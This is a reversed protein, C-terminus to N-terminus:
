DLDKYYYIKNTTPQDSRRGERNQWGNGGKSVHGRNWGAASLTVGSESELIFTQVRSFGMERAVRVCAAYLFSCVNKEGSTCLRLVELVTKQDTKRAVPRGCIAVGVLIGSIEVGLSFRHGTVPKHHRHVRAVFANAEALEVRSPKM